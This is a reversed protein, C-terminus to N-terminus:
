VKNKKRNKFYSSPTEGIIEKFNNIFTSRSSFGCELAIAELTYHEWEPNNINALMYKIRYRNLYERFGMNYERNIFASLTYRPVQVDSVLQELTYSPQLFPKQKTFFTEVIIKYNNLEENGISVDSSVLQIQHSFIDKEEIALSNHSIINETKDNITTPIFIGYLIKPRIFLATCILLAFFGIVVDPLNFDTKFIPALIAPLLSIILLATLMANLATVWHLAVTNNVLVLSSNSLKFRRILIFNKVIFYLSWVFRIFPFFYPPLIGNANTTRFSSNNYYETIYVRKDLIPMTYYPLLNIAFLIAPILLLWDYKRFSFEHNLVSRIYLYSVPAIILTTPHLVKHLQPYSLYIGTHYLLGNINMLAVVLLLWVLVRKSHSAEGNVWLLITITMLSLFTAVFQFAIQFTNMTSFLFLDITLLESRQM